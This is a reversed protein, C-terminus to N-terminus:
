KIHMIIHGSWNINDPEIIKTIIKRNLIMLIGKIFDPWKEKWPNNRQIKYIKINRQFKAKIFSMDLDNKFNEFIIFLQFNKPLVKALEKIIAVEYGEVDLKIIGKTLKKKSLNFFIKSLIEKTKRVKIKKKLYNKKDFFYYGDKETLMKDDYINNQDNIFAGGWNHHPINLSINKNEVGLAFNFLFSKFKKDIININVDLIKFCDPNPEFLYVEKFNNGCQCSILGINAGIDFFFQNYRYDKSIKKILNILSLEYNGRTQPYISLIDGGKLFLRLSKKTLFSFLRTKIGEVIVSFSTEHFRFKKLKSM